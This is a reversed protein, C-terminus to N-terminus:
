RSPSPTRNRQLPGSYRSPPQSCSYSRLTVELSTTVRHWDELAALIERDDALPTFFASRALMRISSVTMLCAQSPQGPLCSSALSAWPQRYRTSSPSPPNEQVETM